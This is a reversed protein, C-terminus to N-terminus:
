AGAATEETAGGLEARLAARIAPHMEYTYRDHAEDWPQNSFLPIKFEEQLKKETRGFRFKQRKVTEYPVGLKEAAEDLSFPVDFSAFCRILDKTSPTQVRQMLRAAYARALEASVAPPAEPGAPAAGPNEPVEPETASALAALAHDIVRRAHRLDEVNSLDVTMQPM